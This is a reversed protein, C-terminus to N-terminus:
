APHADVQTSGFHRTVPLDHAERRTLHLEQPEEELIWADGDPAVFQQRAYPPIVPRHERARHVHVDRAKALLELVLRAMRPKEEGHRFEAVLELGLLGRHLEMQM